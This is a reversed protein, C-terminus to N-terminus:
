YEINIILVVYYTYLLFINLHLSNKPVFNRFFFLNPQSPEGDMIDRFNAFKKSLFTLNTVNKLSVKENTDFFGNEVLREVVLRTKDQSKLNHGPNKLAVQKKKM